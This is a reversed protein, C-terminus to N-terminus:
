GPSVLSNQPWKGDFDGCVVYHGPGDGWKQNQTPTGYADLVYREWRETDLGRDVKTYVSVKGGHFPDVSAIYAFPDNGM